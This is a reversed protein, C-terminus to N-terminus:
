RGVALRLRGLQALACDLAEAGAGVQERRAVPEALARRNQAHRIAAWAELLRDQRTATGVSPLRRTTATFRSSDGATHPGVDAQPELRDVARIQEAAVPEALAQRVALGAGLEGSGAGLEDATAGFNGRWVAYDRADVVGDGNGDAGDGPSVAAGLTNRWVTYDAANVVHDGNYDGPLVGAPIAEVAGIDIRGGYVRTFPAGRQDHLPVGDVGAVAAPDGANIAPSGPLLAHTLIHSGDPLEFGGNDALIGLRPNILTQFTAGGILNGNADPAGIPAPALLTGSNTGILSYNAAITATMLGTLDTSPGAVNSAIIANRVGLVGSSIFVGGGAALASNATLTSYDIDGGAGAWIGGGLAGASNGSATSNTVQWDFASISLAGGNRGAVNGYFTSNNVSVTTARNVNSSSVGGGNVEATNNLFQSRDVTIKGQYEFAIAGGSGNSGHTANASFQSGIVTLDRRSYIGGGQGNQAVNDSIISNDIRLGADAYVGGGDRDAVNETITTSEIRFVLDVLASAFDFYIGGGERGARNDRIMNSLITLPDNSGVFMGGGLDGADNGAIENNAFINQQSSRDIYVGGGHEASNTTISNERITSATTELYLGGGVGGVNGEFSNEEVIVVGESRISAGGGLYETKNGIFRSERIHVSLGPDIPFATFSDRYDVGGGSNSSSNGEFTSSDIMLNARTVRVGGVDNSWNDRFTSGIITLSGRDQDVGGGHNGFVSVSELRLNDNQVGIAAGHENQDSGTVSIRGITVDITAGFIGDSVLLVRSGDDNDQDPTPDNGSADITLLDAGPGDITLSDTIELEGHTLLITAPGAATLAPDFRITDVVGEYNNANALEIAERLSLDGRSYDGDSEDVLTDVLLNLDTPTQYEFAGIDIRGGVIRGFPEGRQDFEPVGDQGAVANLDGANIAPSGPLLAHTLTPGGNDSLPGLMPDLIEEGDGGIGALNGFQDPLGHPAGIGINIALGIVNYRATVGQTTSLNLDSRLIDPSMNKAVISHTLDLALDFGLMRIGAGGFNEVITSHRVASHGEMDLSTSAGNFVVGGGLNTSVTVQGLSVNGAPGVTGFVGGGIVSSNHDITSAEIAITGGTEAILRVGGGTGFGSISNTSNKSITTREISISGGDWASLYVGGGGYGSGSILVANELIKSDVVKANQDRDSVIQVGGGSLEARNGAILSASLTSVVDHSYIGGGRSASNDNVNSRSIELWAGRSYVGGGYSSTNGSIDSDVVKLRGDISAVGGGGSAARGHATSNNAITSNTVTLVGADNFIGGGYGFTDRAANEFIACANVVLLERNLIAGGSGRVDGGRLSFGILSVSINFDRNGDDVNFVRTGNGDNAEPTPDNGSADITLLSAGPGEITLSDTIEFEGQSLLMTAPGGATLSPAFDITDAGPVTNTAFIAERLSTVGDNLDVTDALTTVTVVALLRRDELPELRLRRRYLSRGLSSHTSQSRPRRAAKRWTSRRSM